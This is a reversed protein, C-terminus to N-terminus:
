VELVEVDMEDDWTLNIAGTHGDVPVEARGSQASMRTKAALAVVGLVIVSAVAVAAITATQATSAGSGAATATADVIALPAMAAQVGMGTGIEPEEPAKDAETTDPSETTDPAETADEETPADTTTTSTVDVERAERIELHPYEMEDAAAPAKEAAPQVLNLPPLAAPLVVQNAADESPCLKCVFPLKTSCYETKFRLADKSNGQAACLKYTLGVNGPQGAQWLNLAAWDVNWKGDEVYGLVWRPLNTESLGSVFQAEPGSLVQALESGHEDDHCHRTAHFWSEAEEIQKYLCQNGASFKEWGDIGDTPGAISASIAASAVAGIFLM